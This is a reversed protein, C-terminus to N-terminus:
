DALTPTGRGEKPPPTPTRKRRTTQTQTQPKTTTIGVRKTTGLQLRGLLEGFCESIELPDDSELTRVPHTNPVQPGPRFLERRMTIGPRPPPPPSM